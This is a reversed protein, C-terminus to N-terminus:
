VQNQGIAVHVKNRILRYFCNQIIEVGDAIRYCMYISKNYM